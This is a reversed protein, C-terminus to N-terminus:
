RDSWFGPVKKRSKRLALRWRVANMYRIWRKQTKRALQENLCGADVRRLWKEGKLYDEMARIAMYESLLEGQVHFKTIKDMWRHEIQKGPMGLLHNVIMSNRTDYYDIRPNQRRDATEHWVQIGNLIVPVGGHRLGYEVDDCHLFFPYRIM